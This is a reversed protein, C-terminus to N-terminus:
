RIDAESSVVQIPFGTFAVLIMAGAKILKSNTVVWISETTHRHEKIARQWAFRADPEYGTMDYCEWIYTVKTGPELM